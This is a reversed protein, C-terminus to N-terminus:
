TRPLARQPGLVRVPRWCGERHQLCFRMLSRVALRYEREAFLFELWFERQASQTTAWRSALLLNLATTRLAAQRRMNAQLSALRDLATPSLVRSLSVPPDNM